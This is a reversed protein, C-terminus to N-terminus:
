ITQGLIVLTLCPSRFNESICVKCSNINQMYIVKFDCLNCRKVTGTNLFQEDYLKAGEPLLCFWVHSCHSIQLVPTILTYSACCLPKPFLVQQSFYFKKFFFFTEM